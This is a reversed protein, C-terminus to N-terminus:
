SNQREEQIDRIAQELVLADDETLLGNNARTIFASAETDGMGSARLKRYVDGKDPDGFRSYIALIDAITPEDPLSLDALPVDPTATVPVVGEGATTQPLRVGRTPPESTLASLIRQLEAMQPETLSGTNLYIQNIADIRAQLARERDPENHALRNIESILKDPTPQRNEPISSPQAVETAPAGATQQQQVLLTTDPTFDRPRDSQQAQQGAALNTDPAYDSPRQPQRVQEAPGQTQYTSLREGIKDVRDIQELIHTVAADLQRQEEERSRKSARSAAEGNEARAQRRRTVQEEAGVALEEEATVVPETVAEVRPFRDEAPIVNDPLPELANTHKRRSRSAQPKERVGKKYHRREQDWEVESQGPVPFRGVGPIYGIQANPRHEDNNQDVGEDAPTAAVGRQRMQADTPVRFPGPMNRLSTDYYAMEDVEERSSRVQPMVQTGQNGAIRTIQDEYSRMSNGRYQGQPLSLLYNMDEQKPDGWQIRELRGYFEDLQESTTFRTMDIGSAIRNAWAFRSEGEMREDFAPTHEQSAKVPVTQARREVSPKPTAVSTAETQSRRPLTLLYNVDGQNHWGDRHIEELRQGLQVIQSPDLKSRDIQSAVREAWDVDDEWSFRGGLTDRTEPANHWHPLTAPDMYPQEASRTPAGPVPEAMPTGAYLDPNERMFDNPDLTRARMRDTLADFKKQSKSKKQLKQENSADTAPFSSQPYLDPNRRKFGEPDLQGARARDMRTRAANSEISRGAIGERGMVKRAFVDGFEDPKLQDTSKESLKDLRAREEATMGGQAWRAHREATAVQRDHENRKNRDWGEKIKKRDLLRSLWSGTKVTPEPSDKSADDAVKKQKEDSIDPSLYDSM